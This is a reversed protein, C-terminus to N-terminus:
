STPIETLTILTVDTTIVAPIHVILFINSYCLIVCHQIMSIPKIPRRTYDYHVPTLFKTRRKALKPRYYIVNTIVSVTCKAWQNRNLYYSPTDFLGVVISMFRLDSTPWSNGALTHQPATKHTLTGLPTTPHPLTQNKCTDKHTYQM